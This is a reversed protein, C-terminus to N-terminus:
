LQSGLLHGGDPHVGRRATSGFLEAGPTRGEMDEPRDMLQEVDAEDQDDEDDGSSDSEMGVDEDLHRQPPPLSVGYRPDWDLEEPEEVEVEVRAKWEYKDRLLAVATENEQKLVSMTQQNRLLPGIEGDMQADTIGVNPHMVIKQFINEQESQQQQQQQARAAPFPNVLSNSFNQTQSLIVNYKSLLEPWSPMYEPYMRGELMAYLSEISEIIQNAKFRLSELQSIPLQPTSLKQIASPVQNQQQFQSAM